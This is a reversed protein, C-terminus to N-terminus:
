FFRKRFFLAVAGTIGASNIVALAPIWWAFVGGETETVTGVIAGNELGQATQAYYMTDAYAYLMDKAAQFVYYKATDSTTDQLYGNDYGNPHLCQNTGARICEDFDIVDVGTSQAYWDTIVTGRFGWEDRVVDRFLAYSGSCRLGGLRTFAAM